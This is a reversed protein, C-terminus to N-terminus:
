LSFTLSTIFVTAHFYHSFPSYFKPKESSFGINATRFQPITYHYCMPNQNGWDANSDSYRLWVFENDVLEFFSPSWEISQDGEKVNM